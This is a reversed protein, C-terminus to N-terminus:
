KEEELQTKLWAIQQTKLDIARQFTQKTEQSATKDREELYGDRVIICSNLFYRLEETNCEQVTGCRCIRAFRYGDIPVPAFKHHCTDPPPSATRDSMTLGKLLSPYINFM